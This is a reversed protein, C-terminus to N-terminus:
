RASDGMSWFFFMIIIRAVGRYVVTISCHKNTNTARASTPHLSSTKPLPYGMRQRLGSTVITIKSYDCFICSCIYESSGLGRYMCVDVIVINNRVRYVYMYIYIGRQIKVILESRHRLVGANRPLAAFWAFKIKKVRIPSTVSFRLTSTTMM